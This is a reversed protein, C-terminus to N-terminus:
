GVRTGMWMLGKARGKRADMKKMSVRSVEEGCIGKLGQGAEGGM